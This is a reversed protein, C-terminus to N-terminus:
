LLIAGLSACYHLKSTVDHRVYHISAPEHLVNYNKTKIVSLIKLFLYQMITHQCPQPKSLKSGTVNQKSRVFSGPRLASSSISTKSRKAVLLPTYLDIDENKTRLSLQTIM